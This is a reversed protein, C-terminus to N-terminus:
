APRERPAFQASLLVWLPHMSALRASTARSVKVKYFTVSRRLSRATSSWDVGRSGDDLIAGRGEMSPSGAQFYPFLSVTFLLSSFRGARVNTHTIQCIESAARLLVVLATDPLHRGSSSFRKCDATDTGKFCSGPDDCKGNNSFQCVNSNDFVQDGIEVVTGVAGLKLPGLGADGVQAYGDQLVM